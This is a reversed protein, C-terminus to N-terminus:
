NLSDPDNTTLLPVIPKITKIYHFGIATLGLADM